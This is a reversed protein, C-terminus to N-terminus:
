APNITQHKYSACLAGKFRSLWSFVVGWDWWNSETATPKNERTKIDEEEQITERKSKRAKSEQKGQRTTGGEGLNMLIPTVTGSFYSQGSAYHVVVPLVSGDPPLCPKHHFVFLTLFFFSFLCLTQNSRTDSWFGTNVELSSLCTCVYILQFAITIIITLIVTINIIM